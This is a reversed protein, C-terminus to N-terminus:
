RAFFEVVSRMDVGIPAEETTPETTVKFGYEAPELTLWSPVNVNQLRKVFNEFLVGDRKSVKVRVTDGISLRMSPVNVGHGNVEVIRHSAMQRAAARTPAFGARYLANDLRLELLQIIRPGTQQEERLGYISKLNQKEEMQTGYRSRQRRRRGRQQGGQGQGGGPRQGGGPTNTNKQAATDQPM